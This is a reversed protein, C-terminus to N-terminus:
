GQQFLSSWGAACVRDRAPSFGRHKAFCGSSIVYASGSSSSRYENHSNNGCAPGNLRFLLSLIGANYLSM